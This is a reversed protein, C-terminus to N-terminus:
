NGEQGQTQNKDICYFYFHLNYITFQYFSFNM